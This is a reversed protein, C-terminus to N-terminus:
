ELITNYFFKAIVDRGPMEKESMTKFVESKDFVIRRNVVRYGNEFFELILYQTYDEKNCGLPGPNIYRTETATSFSDDNMHEHGYVILDFQEGKFTDDLQEISPKQMPAKFKYFSELEEHRGYHAFLVKIGNFEKEIRYNWTGMISKYKLGLQRHVWIQHEEEEKSLYAPPHEKGHIYYEEHNGLIMEINNELMLDLSEKPCPGIAISDGLSIIQDCMEENIDVLVKKLAHINGHVDSIVAIKM